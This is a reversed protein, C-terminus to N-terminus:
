ENTRKNDDQKGGKSCIWSLFLFLALIGMFIFEAIDMKTFWM